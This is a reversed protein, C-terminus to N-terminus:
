LEQKLYYIKVLRRQIPLTKDKPYITVEIINEGLALPFDTSFFKEKSYFVLEKIPSQIIGLSNENLKLKIEISNKETVLNESPSIIELPTFNTKLNEKVIKENKNTINKRPSIFTNKSVNSLIFFSLVAGFLVGLFIAILSEKKM